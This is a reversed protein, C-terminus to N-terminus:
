AAPIAKGVVPVKRLFPIVLPVLIAAVILVSLVFAVNTLNGKVDNLIQKMRVFFVM